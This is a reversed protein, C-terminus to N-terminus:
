RVLMLWGTYTQFDENLYVSYYYVGPPLDKGNMKGDWPKFPGTSQYVLNGYRNMIKVVPNPFSAAAPINWTDNVNDGNPSFTNPIVVKPYVTINVEDSSSSCGLSSSAHLTYTIDHPPTAVPNLKAPDDLYDAPTWLYTADNSVKGNLTIKQGTVIKQDAGADAMANKNVNVTIQATESCLGQSVKVTYTTTEAPAAVPNASNPDSLGNAPQWLYETGGSVTLQVSKGECISVMQVNTSIQLPDSVKVNTSANSSCGNAMVTVTYEGEMAKTANTLTPNQATSTFGNPGTWSYSTGGSATLQITNGTCFPGSNEARAIPLPNVTVTIPDSVARCFVKDINGNIATILRYQYIGAPQNLFNITAPKTTVGNINVWDAGKNEQWQYVPNVYEPSINANVTFSSTNGECMNLAANNLNFFPTIGPGCAQVTIDDLAFDNGSNTPTDNVLQLTVTSNNGNSFDLTYQHWMGDATVNGTSASGLLNGNPDIVKLIMKPPQANAAPSNTNLVWISLRLMTNPCLDDMKQEFFVTPTAVGDILLMLGNNDGTHDAHPLWYIPYPNGPTAPTKVLGSQNATLNRPSPGPPGMFTTSTSAGPAYQALPGYWNDTDNGQGFTQNILPPGFTGTCVQARAFFAFLLIFLFSLTKILRYM